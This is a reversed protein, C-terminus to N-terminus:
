VLIMGKPEGCVPIIKKTKDKKSVQIIRNHYIDQIYVYKDDAIIEKILGGVTIEEVLELNYIDVVTIIGDGFNAIYCNDEYICMDMPINKLNVRKKIYENKSLKLLSGITGEGMNSECIYIDEGNKSWLAKVPYSGVKITKYTEKNNSNFTTITNSLMNAVIFKDKTTSYDLSRPSIGCTIIEVIEKSLLNFCIVSNSEECVIYLNDGKIFMDSCGPGIYFDDVVEKGKLIYIKRNEYSSIIFFEKYSCIKFPNIKEIYNLKISEELTFTNIDIKDIRDSTSNCIYLHEM